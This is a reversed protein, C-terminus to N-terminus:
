EVLMGMRTRFTNASSSRSGVNVDVGDLLARTEARSTCGGGVRSKCFASKEGCRRRKEEEAALSCLLSVYFGTVTNKQPAFDLGRAAPLAIVILGRNSDRVQAAAFTSTAFAM